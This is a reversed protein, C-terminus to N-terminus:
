QGKELNKFSQCLRQNNNICKNTWIKSTQESKVDLQVTDLDTNLAMRLVLNVIRHKLQSLDILGLSITSIACEPFNPILLGDM